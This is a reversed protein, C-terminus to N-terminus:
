VALMGTALCLLLLLCIVVLGISLYPPPSRDIKRREMKSITALVGLAMSLLTVGLVSLLNWRAWAATTAGPSGSGHMAAPGVLPLIIALFCFSLGSMITLVLGVMPRAFFSIGPTEKEKAAM